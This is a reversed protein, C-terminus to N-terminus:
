CPLLKSEEWVLFFRSTLDRQDFNLDYSWIQIAFITPFPQKIGLFWKGCGRNVKIHDVQIIKSDKGGSTLTMQRSKQTVSCKRTKETNHPCLHLPPFHFQPSFVVLSIYLKYQFCYIRRLDNLRSLFWDQGVSYCSQTKTSILGRTEMLSFCDHWETKGESVPCM